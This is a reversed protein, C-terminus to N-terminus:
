PEEAFLSTLTKANSAKPPNRLHIFDRPSVPMLSDRCVDWTIRAMTVALAEVAHEPPLTYIAEPDGFWM